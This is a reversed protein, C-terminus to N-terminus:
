RSTASTRQRTHMPILRFRVKWNVAMAAASWLRSSAWRVCSKRSLALTTPTKGAGGVHYNGICFVPLGVVAGERGMRQATIAGYIAGFPFLLRSIWSPPRYWFAPERM